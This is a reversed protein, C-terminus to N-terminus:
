PQNRDLITALEDRGGRSKGSAQKPASSGAAPAVCRQQPAAKLSACHRRGRHINV